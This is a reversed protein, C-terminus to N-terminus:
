RCMPDRRLASRRVAALYVQNPQRPPVLEVAMIYRSVPRDNFTDVVEVGRVLGARGCRSCVIRQLGGDYRLRGGCSGCRHDNDM